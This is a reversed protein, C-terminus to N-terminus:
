GLVHLHSVRGGLLFSYRCIRKGFNTFFCVFFFTRDRYQIISIYPYITVELDLDFLPLCLDIVYKNIIHAHKIQKNAISMHRETESLFRSALMLKLMPLNLM